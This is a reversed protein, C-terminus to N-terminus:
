VGAKRSAPAHIYLQPINAFRHRSMVTTVILAGAAVWAIGAARGIWRGYRTLKELLVLVALLAAGRNSRWELFARIDHDTPQHAIARTYAPHIALGSFVNALNKFPAFGASRGTRCGVWNSNTILRLVAFANPRITGRV